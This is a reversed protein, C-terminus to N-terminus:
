LLPAYCPVERGRGTPSPGMWRLSTRQLPYSRVKLSQGERSPDLFPQWCSFSAATLHLMGLMPKWFWTLEPRRMAECQPSPSGQSLGLVCGQALPSPNMLPLQCKQQGESGAQFARDERQTEGPRAWMGWPWTSAELSTLLCLSVEPPHVGGGCGRPDGTFNLFFTGPAPSWLVTLLPCHPMPSAAHSPWLELTTSGHVTPLDSMNRFKTREKM